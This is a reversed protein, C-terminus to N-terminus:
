CKFFVSPSYTSKSQSLSIYFSVKIGTRGEKVDKSHVFIKGAIDDCKFFGFKGKWDIIEGTFIKDDPRTDLENVDEGEDVDKPSPASIVSKPIFKPKKKATSNTNTPSPSPERSPSRKKSKTKSRVKKAKMPKSTVPSSSRARPRSLFDDVRDKWSSSSEATSLSSPASQAPPYGPPPIHPNPVLISPNIYKFRPQQGTPSVGTNTQPIITSLQVHVVSGDPGAMPVLITSGPAPASVPATSASLVSSSSATSSQHQSSNNNMVPKHREWDDRPRERGVM